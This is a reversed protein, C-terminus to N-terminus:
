HFLGILAFMAFDIDDDNFQVFSIRKLKKEM